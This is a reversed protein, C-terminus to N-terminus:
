PERLMWYTFLHFHAYIIGIPLVISAYTLPSFSADSDHASRLLPPILPSSASLSPFPPPSLTSASYPAPPAHMAASRPPAHTALLPKHVPLSPPSAALEAVAPSPSRRHFSDAPPLRHRLPPPHQTPKHQDPGPQQTSRGASNCPNYFVTRKLQAKAKYANTDKYLIHHQPGIKGM